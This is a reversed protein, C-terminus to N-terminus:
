PTGKLSPHTYLEDVWTQRCATLWANRACLEVILADAALKAINESLTLEPMEFTDLFDNMM